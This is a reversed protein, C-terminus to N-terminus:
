RGQQPMAAVHALVARVDGPTDLVADAGPVARGVSVALGGHAAAAHFGAEDTVDDGVFVPVRGRFPGGALLDAVATGKDCGAGKVEYVFHGPLVVVQEEGAVLADLAARLPVSLEPRTRYHVALAAGKDEVLLGGSAAALALIRDRLRAALPPRCQVAPAGARRMEAGHVGAAALRLPSLLADLRAITRGSVLAVAGGCRADLRALIDILGAPVRVADPHAALEILTGDVDLFFAHRDPSLRDRLAPAGGGMTRTETDEPRTAVMDRTM